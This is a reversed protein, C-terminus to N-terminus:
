LMSIMSPNTMIKKSIDTTNQHDKFESLFNSSYFVSKVPTEHYLIVPRSEVVPAAKAKTRQRRTVLAGFPCLVTGGYHRHGNDFTPQNSLPFRRTSRPKVSGLLPSPFGRFYSGSTESLPRCCHIGPRFVLFFAGQPAWSPRTTSIPPTPGRQRVGWSQARSRQQLRELLYRAALETEWPHSPNRM